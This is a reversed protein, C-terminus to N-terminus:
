IYPFYILIKNLSMQAGKAFLQLKKQFLVVEVLVSNVRIAHNLQKIKM